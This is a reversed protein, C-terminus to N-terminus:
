RGGCSEQPSGCSGLGPQRRQGLLAGEVGRESAGGEPGLEIGDESPPGASPGSEEKCGGREEGRGPSGLRGSRSENRESGLHERVSQTM